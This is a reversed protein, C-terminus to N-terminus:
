PREAAGDDHPRSREAPYHVPLLRAHDRGDDVPFWLRNKKFHLPANNCITIFYIKVYCTQFRCRTRQHNERRTRGQFIQATQYYLCGNHPRQLLQRRGLNEQPRLRTGFGRKEEPRAHDASRDRPHLNQNGTRRIPLM